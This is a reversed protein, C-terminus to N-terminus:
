LHSPQSDDIGYFNVVSNYDSYDVNSSKGYSAPVLLIRFTKNTVYSSGGLNFTGGAYIVFDYRSFDYNYDVENGDELYLTIPIQQWIPSNNNTSGVQMYALLMDTEYMPNNFTRSIQYSDGVLNFNANKVDYVVPYTDYDVYVSNDDTQCSFTALGFVAVFLFLIIKKM